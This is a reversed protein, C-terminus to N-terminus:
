NNEDEEDENENWLDLHDNAYFWIFDNVETITPISGEFYENVLDELEYFRGVERAHEIVNTAGGWAPFNILEFEATYTM